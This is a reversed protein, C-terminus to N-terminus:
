ISVNNLLLSNACNRQSTKDKIRFSIIDYIRNERGDGDRNYEAVTGVWAYLAPLFISYPCPDSRYESYTVRKFILGQARVPFDAGFAMRYLPSFTHTFTPTSSSLYKMM